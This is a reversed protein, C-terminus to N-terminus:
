VHWKIESASIQLVKTNSILKWPLQSDDYEVIHYDRICDRWGGCSPKNPAEGFPIESIRQLEFLVSDFTDFKEGIIEAHFDDEIIYM